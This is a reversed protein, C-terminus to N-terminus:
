ILYYYTHQLITHYRHYIYNGTKKNLTSWSRVIRKSKRRNIIRNNEKRTGKRSKRGEKRGTKM